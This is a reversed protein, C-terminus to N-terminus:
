FPYLIFSSINTIVYLVSGCMGIKYSCLLACLASVPPHVGKNTSAPAVQQKPDANGAPYLM